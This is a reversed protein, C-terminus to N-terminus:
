SVSRAASSWEVRDFRLVIKGRAHHSESLAHAKATQELPFVAGVVPRLKGEEVLQGLRALKEGDPQLFFYGTRIGAAKAKAEDPPSVISVLIGGPAIVGFSKEQVAGGITDFVVDCASAVQAFDEMTYDIVEDTGYAQVFQVNATSTTTLVRAGFAKALQIAYIGVGGAGAHVLVKQGASVHAIEHLADWATLGALPISAAEEFTINKPKLAVLSEDVAVLEAYTGNRDTAPRSFVADGPKFRTVHDGIREVVGSVDWGLILPFQYQLRSQLYGERIKWDVPNVSAAHARILVDKPGVIPNPLEGYKLQEHGGYAEIYVAKM